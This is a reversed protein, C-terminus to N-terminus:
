FRYTTGSLVIDVGAMPTFGKKVPKMGKPGEFYVLGIVTQGKSLTNHKLLGSANEEARRDIARQDAAAKAASADNVERAANPDTYTITSATGNSNNVTATQPQSASAGAGAAAVGNLIGSLLSHHKRDHEVRVEYDLYPLPTKQDDMASASFLAPNVDVPTDGDQRVQVEVAHLRASFNQPSGVAVTVNQDQIIYFHKGDVWVDRCCPGPTFGIVKQAQSVSASLSLAVLVTGIAATLM